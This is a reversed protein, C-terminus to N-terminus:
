NLFFIIVDVVIEGWVLNQTRTTITDYKDIIKLLISTNIINLKELCNLKM